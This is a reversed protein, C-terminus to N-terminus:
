RALLAALQQRAPGSALSLHHQLRPALAPHQQRLLQRRAEQAFPEAETRLVDLLFEVARADYAGGLAALISLRVGPETSERYVRCLAPVADPFSAEALALRATNRVREEPDRLSQILLRLCRRYPLRPLAAVVAARLGIRSDANEGTTYGSGSLSEEYLRCLPAQAEYCSLGGLGRVLALSRGEYPPRLATLVTVLARRRVLAPRRTELALLLCTAAPDGATEWEILDLTWVPPTVPRPPPDGGLDDKQDDKQLSAGDSEPYRGAQALYRGRAEVSLPLEALARFCGRVAVFDGLATHAEIAFLLAHEALQIAAGSTLARSAAAHAADATRRWYRRLLLTGLGGRRVLDVAERALQAAAAHEGFTAAQDLLEEYCGLADLARGEESLLRICSVQGEVLNEFRRLSDGLHVLVRYCDLAQERAGQAISEDAQEELLQQALAAQRRGEREEDLDRHLTALQAHVLARPYPGLNPASLVPRLQRLAERPRGAERLSLAALVPSGAQGLLAAAEVLRASGTGPTPRQPGAGSQQAEALMVLARERPFRSEGLLGLAQAYRGRLAHVLAAPLPQASAAFAQAADDLWADYLTSKVDAHGLLARLRAAAEDPRGGRLLKRAERHLRELAEADSMPGMMGSRPTWRSDRRERPAGRRAALARRQGVSPGLM